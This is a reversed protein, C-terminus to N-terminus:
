LEVDIDEQKGTQQLQPFHQWVRSLFARRARAEAKPRYLAVCPLSTMSAELEAKAARFLDKHFDHATRERAEIDGANVADLRRWLSRFFLRDAVRDFRERAPKSLTDPRKDDYRGKGAERRDGRRLLLAIANRLAENFAKIEDLQIASLKGADESRFLRVASDPVPIVRSKFGSTKGQERSLAEAVLLRDTATENAGLQALLPVRWKGGFLLDALKRYDFDGGGLTLSKRDDVHVPAWPDGVYGRYVKADIRAAESVSKVASLRQGTWILRVRRCVEIFWPDLSRLDLQSREPWDLCWLLAPGGDHGFDSGNGARREFLLREVDRRWWKSPNLRDTRDLMPVLGLMVRSSYGGNMRAIGYTKRGDIGACTQLSVLAFLWDEAEVDRAVNQKLDHNRATILLDLADPTPVPSWKLGAPVPPQLFAPRTDDDVVMRWPSDDQQNPTLGRLLDTWETADSPLDQRKAGWLALAGLQVLFMHWAPRQHPRLATFGTVESRAMAALLGPLSLRHVTSVSIIRNTLLNM